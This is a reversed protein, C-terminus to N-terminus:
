HIPNFCETNSVQFTNCSGEKRRLRLSPRGAFRLRPLDVGASMLTLANAGIDAPTSKGQERVYPVRCGGRGCAPFLSRFRELASLKLGMAM